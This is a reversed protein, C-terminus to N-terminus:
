YTRDTLSRGCKVLPRMVTDAAGRKDLWDRQTYPLKNAIAQREGTAGDIYSMEEQSSLDHAMDYIHARADVIPKFMPHAPVDTIHEGNIWVDRGDRISERYEEGTRIV